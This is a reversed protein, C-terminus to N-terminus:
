TTFNTYQGEEDLAIKDYSDYIYGNVTFSTGIKLNIVIDSVNYKNDFVYYVENQIPTITYKQMEHSYLPVFADEPVIDNKIGCNIISLTLTLLFLNLIKRYSDM